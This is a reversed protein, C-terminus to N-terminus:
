LFLYFRCSHLSSSISWLFHLFSILSTTYYGCLRTQALSHKRSGASGPRGPYVATTITLSETKTCICDPIQM